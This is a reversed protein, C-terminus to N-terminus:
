AWIELTSATIPLPDHVAAVILGGAVLHASMVEGMLARAAADLPALPEDLLWLSRPAAILRALALRRRQGASLRRVELDLQRALGLRDAAELAASAAAGCWRCQFLLEERATRASKLGDLHGLLHLGGRRAEGDDAADEFEIRGAAPRLLGAIARLLSTKGTGNPGVVALAEGARLRASLGQFLLRSGRELALDEIVLASIM